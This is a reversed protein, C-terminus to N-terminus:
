SIEALLQLAKEQATEILERGGEMAYLRQLEERLQVSMPSTPQPEAGGAQELAVLEQALQTYLREIRPQAVTLQDRRRVAQLEELLAEARAQAREQRQRVSPECGVVLLLPILLALRFDMALGLVLCLRGSLGGPGALQHPAPVVLFQG